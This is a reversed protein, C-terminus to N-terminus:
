NVTLTHGETDGSTDTCNPQYNMLGNSKMCVTFSRGDRCGLGYEGVGAPSLQFRGKITQAPHLQLSYMSHKKLTVAFMRKAVFLLISDQVPLCTM